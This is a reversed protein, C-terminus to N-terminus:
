CDNTIICNEWDLDKVHEDGFERRILDEAFERHDKGPHEFHFGEKRKGDVEIIHGCCGTDCGYDAHCVIIKM